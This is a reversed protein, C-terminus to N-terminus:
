FAGALSGPLMLRILLVLTAMPIPMPMPMPLPARWRVNPNGPGLGVSERVEAWSAGYAHPVNMHEDGSQEELQQRKKDRLQAATMGPHARELRELAGLFLRGYHM